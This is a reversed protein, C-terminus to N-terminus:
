GQRAAPLLGHTLLLALAGEADDPRLCPIGAICLSDDATILALLQADPVIREVGTERRVVEFKRVDAHKFGEAVVLDLGAPLRAILDDLTPEDPLREITVLQHGGSIVVVDCGAQAYRFTDTGERDFQLRGSHKITAVRLGRRKLAALLREIFSTKGANHWGVVAIVPVM